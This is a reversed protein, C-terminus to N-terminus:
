VSSAGALHMRERQETRIQEISLGTRAAIVRLVRHNSDQPLVMQHLSEWIKIRAAPSNAESIQEARDHQRQKAAEAAQKIIRARYDTNSDAVTTTQSIIELPKLIAM